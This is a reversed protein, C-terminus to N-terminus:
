IKVRDLSELSYVQCVNLRSSQDKKFIILSKFSIGIVRKVYKGIFADKTDYFEGDHLKLSRGYKEIDERKFSKGSYYSGKLTGDKLRDIIKL